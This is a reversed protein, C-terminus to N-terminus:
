LVVMVGGLLGRKLTIVHENTRKVYVHVIAHSYSEICACARLIANEISTCEIEVMSGRKKARKEKADYWKWDIACICPTYYDEM